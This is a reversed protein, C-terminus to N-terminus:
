DATTFSQGQTEPGIWVIMALLVGAIAICIEMASGLAVGRDQLNGILTPTLSGVAAGAHYAFGPGVARAATPFRETLYSPAMGWVGVGCVGMVLAGVLLVSASHTGVFIPVCIVGGIAALAIAGRRGIAESVRGWLATGGVAGANLAVVYEVPPLNAQRVFTPYWFSVSYYSFMFVCMLLTTQLTTGILDRRFIRVVSLEDTRRERALQARRELWLPSEKVWYRIAFVLVVPAAAVWFLHRWAGETHAAETPYLVQYVLAAAMYGWNFGGMLMGSATGRLSKPWHELALPLGAAWVGGMGIGFLARCAFLMAYNVSFGSLLSFLSIWLISLILPGKRGFRDAATGVTLGGVLRFMLTVTGLMGALAKDVTFSHQIDILVFTLISFDFGDLTWGLFAAFFAHWQARTVDRFTLRATVPPALTETATANQSV